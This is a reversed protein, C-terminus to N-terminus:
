RTNKAPRGMTSHLLYSENQPTPQLRGSASLFNGATVSVFLWRPLIKCSTLNSNCCIHINYMFHLIVQTSTQVKRTLRFANKTKVYTDSVYRINNDTAKVFIITLLKSTKHVLCLNLYVFCYKFCLHLHHKSYIIYFLISAMLLYWDGNCIFKWIQHKCINDMNVVRKTM